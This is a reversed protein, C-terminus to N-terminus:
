RRASKKAKKHKAKPCGTVTIPTSQKITAGNQGVFLTPMKLTSTCLNGNAALASNPGQALTLEFSTVPQDPVTRFTSSTIGAKSIFTEGHLDITIGYGQLVIILEPFKAGGHSVFYAPGTIPVPLIPTTATAQGVRSAAPCGAPNTNFQADTCAQQLTTLRSPLQKPLNVKVMRINTDKGFSDKPYTLKVNLSAGKKRSTRGSTTVKFSPKFALSACDAAQFRSSGTATTDDAPSAMNQGAGNVSDAITKVSCSTPNLTFSQRDIYARIARLHIVVGDIIHPIQDAPGAPISVQATNADIQLPLRLVVTGLDFPGVKAATVAVVSFPAGEFPGALYISGPTQALVPGVGAEAITHGILSGAPCAPSNQAETGTQERARQIETAGCFPIGSLNGTLGPPLATSFGTIEQEGDKREIRLYLPSYRGAANNMTGATLSPAFPPTGGSPCPGGGLGSDVTFSSTRTTAETESEVSFPTFSVQSAYTGCTAPNVLPARTGERFKAELSSYPLPPLGEFTATIQGTTPDLDIRGAQKVIVGRDRARAILYGAVLSKFPNDYPSALYVGGEIPEEVLPSHVLVDGIKSAQPCGAGPATDVQETAYEASTCVDIGVAMSPNVTVGVPLKVVTKRPQSESIGGPELLGKDPLGLDFTLGTASEASRSSPLVAVEPAFPVRSCDTFPAPNGGADETVWSQEDFVGPALASDARVAARPAAQCSTPLTLYPQLPATSPLPPGGKNLADEGRESDHGPAAPTGWIVERVSFIEVPLDFTGVRLGYGEESRVSANELANFTGGSFALQGAVGPPAEMNYVPGKIEGLGSVVAHLVGIQTNPPCQPLIGEFDVRPCQPAAQPNGVLGPPLDVIVDRAQGGEVSGGEGTKFAFNVTYQFPHSGAQLDVTGDQNEAVASFSGPVMGFGAHAAPALLGTLAVFLAVWRAVLNLRMMM